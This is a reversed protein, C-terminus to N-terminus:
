SSTSSWAVGRFDSCVRSWDGDFFCSVSKLFEVGSFLVPSNLSNALVVVVVVVFVVLVDGSPLSFRFVDNVVSFVNTTFASSLSFDRRSDISQL